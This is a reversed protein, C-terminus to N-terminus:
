GMRVYTKFMQVTKINLGHTKAIEKDPTKILEPHLCAEEILDSIRAFTGNKLIDRYNVIYKGMGLRKICCEETNLQQIAQSIRSPSIDMLQSLETQTVRCIGDEGKFELLTDVLRQHLLYSHMFIPDKSNM